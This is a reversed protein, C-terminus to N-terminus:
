APTEAWEVPAGAARLYARLAEGERERLRVAIHLQELYQELVKGGLSVQRERFFARVATEWEPRALATVGECLRRLGTTPFDRSMREWNAQVFAWAQERSHTGYMLARVLFPADQTRVEGSLALALTRAVLPEPRFLALSLLFRQEEQPTGASRYRKLYDDYRAEDGTHALIAIAAARVSADTHSSAFV